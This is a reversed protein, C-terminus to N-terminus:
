EESRRKDRKYARAARGGQANQSWAVDPNMSVQTRTAAAWREEADETVEDTIQTREKEQRELERRNAEDRDRIVQPNQLDAAELWSLTAHSPEAFEGDAGFVPLFTLPANEPVVMLHYYGPVLGPAHASDKAKVMLITVDPFKAGLVRNWEAQVVGGTEIMEMVSANFAATSDRHEDAVSPPLWLSSM